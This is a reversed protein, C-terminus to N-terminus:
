KSIYDLKNIYQKNQIELKYAQIADEGAEDSLIVSVVLDEKVSNSLEHAVQVFFVVLGFLILVLATSICSTFVQMGTLSRKRKGKRM